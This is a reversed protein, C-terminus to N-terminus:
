GNDKGVKLLKKDINLNYVVIKIRIINANM